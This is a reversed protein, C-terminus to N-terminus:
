GILGGNYVSSYLFKAVSLDEQFEDRLKGVIRESLAPTEFMDKIKGGLEGDLEAAHVLRPEQIVKNRYYQAKALVAEIGPNDTDFENIVKVLGEARSDGEELFGIEHAAAEVFEEPEHGESSVDGGLLANLEKSKDSAAAKGAGKAGKKSKEGKESKESKSLKKDGSKTLKPLPKAVVMKAADSVKAGDKIEPKVEGEVKVEAKLKPKGEPAKKNILQAFKAAKQQAIDKAASQQAANTLKANLVPQEPAKKIDPRVMSSKSNVAKETLAKQGAKDGSQLTMLQKSNKSNKVYEKGAKAGHEAAKHQLEGRTKQVTQKEVQKEARVHETGKQPLKTPTKTEKNVMGAMDKIENRVVKAKDNRADRLNKSVSNKNGGVVKSM